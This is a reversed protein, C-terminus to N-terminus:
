LNELFSIQKDIDKASWLFSAACLINAGAEVIKPSTELNVGGDVAIDIADDLERIERIKELSTECFAQGSFGPKVGMVLVLDLNFVEPAIIDVSTEPNLAIGAQKNRSQILRIADSVDRVAEAHVIVRKVSSLDCWEDLYDEPNEIMLHVEINLNTKLGELDKPNDWTQNPVFKNDMIDLQVWEVKGEVLHIKAEVDKWNKELIAPIVQPM